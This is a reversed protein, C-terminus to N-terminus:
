RQQKGNWQTTLGGYGYEYGFRHSIVMDGEMGVEAVM